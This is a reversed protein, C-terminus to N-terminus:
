VPGSVFQQKNQIVFRSLLELPQDTAKYYERNLGDLTEFDADTLKALQYARTEQDSSPGDTGFVRLARSVINATPHAGIEVLSKVAIAAHDGSSNAFYQSFGGNGVEGDLVQVCYYVQFAPKVNALGKDDVQSFVIESLNKVGELLEMADHAFRRVTENPSQMAVEVLTRSKEHGKAALLKICAGFQYMGPFEEHDHRLVEALEVVKDTPVDVNFDALIELLKHLENNQLCLFADSTLLKVAREEDLRLLSDAVYKVKVRKCQLLSILEDLIANRYDSTGGTGNSLCSRVGWVAWQMTEENNLAAKTPLISEDLGLQAVCQVATDRIDKDSQHIRPLVINLLEPPSHPELLRIAIKYPAFFDGFDFEGTNPKATWLQAGKLSEIIYPVAPEGVEGLIDRAIYKTEDDKLLNVLHTLQEPTPEGVPTLQRRLENEDAEDRFRTWPSRVWDWFGGRFRKRESNM